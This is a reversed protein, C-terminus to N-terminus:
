QSVKFEVRRNQAKGEKTANDAIPQEQGYGTATLRSEDVKKKVLYAKVADARKQSLTMNKDAKGTNDTHGAIEMKLQPYQENLIRAAKDLEKKAAATLTASGTVFQVNSANFKSTELKPCGGNDAPGAIDPCRDEDDNVGDGDKDPIPCGNYKAVGPENPCKDEEDNIGDKDTDPIPCGNYKALGPTDPCKDEEDNVGDKDRDPIPCGEYKQTGAVTPCKDLEDNIGDGDTDPIPCGKYRAFGPVSACSDEKDIVGDGDSDAPVLRGFLRLKLGAQITQTYFKINQNGPLQAENMDTLGHIYRAFVVVRAHPLIEIGGTIATSTKKFDDKDLGSNNDDKVRTLFDFQPGATIAFKPGLHFKVLLPVSIYDMDGNLIGATNTKPSIPYSSYMAQPEISIVKGLPFNVWLGASWGSKWDFDINSPNDGDTRFRNYNWAGLIGGSVTYHEKVIKLPPLTQSNTAAATGAAATTMTTDQSFGMIGSCLSLLLFLCRKM